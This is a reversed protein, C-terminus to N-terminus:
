HTTDPLMIVKPRAEFVLYVYTEFVRWNILKHLILQNDNKIQKWFHYFKYMLKMKVIELESPIIAPHTTNSVLQNLKEIDEGDWHDLLALHFNHYGPKKIYGSTNMVQEVLPKTGKNIPISHTILM